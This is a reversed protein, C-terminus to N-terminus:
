RTVGTAESRALPQGPRQGRLQGPQPETSSDAPQGRDADAETGTLGAVASRAARMLASRDFWRGGATGDALGAAARPDDALVAAVPVGLASEVEAARYPRNGVMLLAVPEADSDAAELRLRRVADLRHRAHHVQALTPRLVMLVRDAAALLGEQGAFPLRGADAIVDYPPVFDGMQKLASAIRPWVPAVAASHAPDSLGALLLLQGDEISLQLCNRLVDGPTLGRRAALAVELLGGRPPTRGRLFGAMVDGGAPDCEALIVPRPWSAALALSATTAGPSGKASVLVTLTM